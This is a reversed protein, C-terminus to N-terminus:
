IIDEDDSEYYEESEKQTLVKFSHVSSKVLNGDIKGLLRWWYQGPKLTKKLIKVKRNKVNRQYIIKSFEDNPSIELKLTKLGKEFEESIKWNFDIKMSGKTAVYVQNDEPTNLELDDDSFLKLQNLTLIRFVTSTAVKATSVVGKGVVEVTKLAGKGVLEVGTVVGGGVLSVGDVVTEGVFKVGKGIGDAVAAIEGAELKTSQESNKSGIDIAGEMVSLSSAKNNSIINVKGKGSKLEVEKDKLKLLLNSQDAVLDLSVRGNIVNLKNQDQESDVIFLTNESVIVINGNKFEIELESDSYTYIKDNANIEQGVQLSSWVTGESYKRKVTNKVSKIKAVKVLAGIDENQLELDLQSFRWSCFAIVASFFLVVINDVKSDLM